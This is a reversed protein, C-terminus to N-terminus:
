YQRLYARVDDPTKKPVWFSAREPAAKRCLLDRGRIRFVLAVPTLVLYFLVSLMIQSLVWGIPFALLMWGVFIWRVLGPRVLGCVGVLLAAAGLIIGLTQHGARFYERAGLALFFVLWAGAFQRLTKPAPRFPIDSWTM